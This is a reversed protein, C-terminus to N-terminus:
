GTSRDRGLDLVASSGGDGHSALPQEAGHGPMRRRHQSAPTRYRERVHEPVEQTEALRYLDELKPMAGPRALEVTGGTLKADLEEGPQLGLKNVIAQPIRVATSNGWKAIKVLM